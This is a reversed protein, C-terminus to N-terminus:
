RPPAASVVGEWDSIQHGSRSQVDTMTVQLRRGTDEAALYELTLELIRVVEVIDPSPPSSPVDLPCYTEEAEVNSILNGAVNTLTASDGPGTLSDLTEWPVEAVLLWDRGKRVIWFDCSRGQGGEVEYVSRVPREPLSTTTPVTERTEALDTDGQSCASALVTWLTLALLRRPMRCNSGSVKGNLPLYIATM